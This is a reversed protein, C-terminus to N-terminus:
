YCHTPLINQYTRKKRTDWVLQQFITVSASEFLPAVKFPLTLCFLFTALNQIKTVSLCSVTVAASRTCSPRLVLSTYTIDYCYSILMSHIHAQCSTPSFLFKATINMVGYLLVRWSDPQTYLEVTFELMGVAFNATLVKM